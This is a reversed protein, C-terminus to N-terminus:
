QEKVHIYSGTKNMLEPYGEFLVGEGQGEGPPLPSGSKIVQGLERPM